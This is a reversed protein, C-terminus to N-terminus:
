YHFRYQDILAKNSGWGAPGPKEMLKSSLLHAQQYRIVFSTLGFQGNGQLPELRTSFQSALENFRSTFCALDDLDTDNTINYPVLIRIKDQADPEGRRVKQPGEPVAMGEGIHDGTSIYHNIALFLRNIPTNELPEIPTAM